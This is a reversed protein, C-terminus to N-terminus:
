NDMQMLPFIWENRPQIESTNQYDFEGFETVFNKIRKDIIEEGKPIMFKEFKMNAIKEIQHM